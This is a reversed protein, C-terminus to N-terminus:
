CQTQTAERKAGELVSQGKQRIKKKVSQDIAIRPLYVTEPRIASHLAFDTCHQTATTRGM